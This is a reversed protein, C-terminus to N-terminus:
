LAVGVCTEDPRLIRPCVTPAEAPRSFVPVAVAVLGLGVVGLLYLLAGGTASVTSVLELAFMALWASGVVCTPLVAVAVAVLRGLLIVLARPQAVGAYYLGPAPRPVSM